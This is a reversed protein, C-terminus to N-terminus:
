YEKWHKYEKHQRLADEKNEAQYTFTFWMDYHVDYDHIEYVNDKKHIVKIRDFYLLLITTGIIICIIFLTSSFPM